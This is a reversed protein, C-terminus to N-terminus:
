ALGAHDIHYHTALGYRIEALPVDMRKINAQMLGMTPWGLDVILRSTGASIIWSNTSRYRVNLITIQSPEPMTGM